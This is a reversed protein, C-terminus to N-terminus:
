SVHEGCVRPHDGRCRRNAGLDHTNGACAPIIGTPSATAWTPWPTGRVRPSSGRSTLLSKLWPVHEGCVRPHDRDHLPSGVGPSTNGACAPIIGPRSSRRRYRAPTGRVRPSSGQAVKLVGQMVEHEGCVRPHDRKPRLRATSLLTNGCVRPHDWRRRSCWGSGGTNGACAPIIRHIRGHSAHQIQTGRVRPSSGVSPCTMHSFHGHEGCVRPHDRTDRYERSCETTNGACAPIIGRGRVYCVVRWLTGRVRPSSGSVDVLSAVAMCHEGCVRPHDGDDASRGPCWRTNGACAPIIGRHFVALPVFALTGRVRPSSGALRMIARFVAWHEGCVRPHDRPSRGPLLTIQTNGACAPIIGTICSSIMAACLTGRVRPSSGLVLFRSLGRWPHEGCVRPHDRHPQVRGAGPLTNGACAPIIGM